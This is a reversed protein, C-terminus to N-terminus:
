NLNKFKPNEYNNLYEESTCHKTHNPLTVTVMKVLIIALAIEGWLPTGQANQHPREHVRRDHDRKWIM